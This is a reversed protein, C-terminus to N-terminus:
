TPPDSRQGERLEEKTTFPLLPLDAADRVEERVGQLREAYFPSSAELYALQEQLASM